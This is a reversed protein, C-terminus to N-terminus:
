IFLGMETKLRNEGINIYEPNLEFGVYNRGLKRSVLATTGAGMFPDLVVGGEPCGAKICDVILDEPFTAFHAEKFPKTTVTWVSRKNAKMGEWPVSGCVNSGTGEPCGRESGPKREKNGSKRGGRTHKMEGTKGKDFSSGNWSKPRLGNVMESPNSKNDSKQQMLRRYDDKADKADQKIAEHDYFYKQSKSLLFIYEHAKTCRDTVSEPMPNPKHWIIDQRLYWGASRLAFAVMWPIGVLDKPKIHDHKGDLARMSQLPTGGSQIAGREDATRRAKSNGNMGKGGWYSDGLNLWLTGEPKLVRRAQEFVQVMGAVYQEPTQELGIQDPHGYDRLGYYPPSTVCCDISNDPLGKILERVDGCQIKNLFHLM